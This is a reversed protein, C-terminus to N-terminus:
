LFLFSLHTYIRLRIVNKISHREPWSLDLYFALGHVDSDALSLNFFFLFFINFCTKLIDKVVEDHINQPPFLALGYVHTLFYIQCM